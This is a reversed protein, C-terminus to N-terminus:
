GFLRSRFGTLDAHEPLVPGLPHEAPVGIKYMVPARSEVDAIRNLMATIHAPRNRFYNEVIRAVQERCITTNM